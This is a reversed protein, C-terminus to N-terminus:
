YNWTVMVGNPPLVFVNINGRWFKSPFM